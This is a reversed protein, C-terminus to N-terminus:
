LEYFAVKNGDELEFVSDPVGIFLNDDESSFIFLGAPVEDDNSYKGNSSKTEGIFNRFTNEIKKPLFLIENNTLGNSICKALVELTNM